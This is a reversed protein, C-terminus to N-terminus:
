KYTKEKKVPRRTRRGTKIDEDNEIKIDFNSANECIDRENIKNKINKLNCTHTHTHVAVVNKFNKNM